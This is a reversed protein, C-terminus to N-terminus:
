HRVRILVGYVTLVGLWPGGLFDRCMGRWEEESVECYTIWHGRAQALLISATVEALANQM